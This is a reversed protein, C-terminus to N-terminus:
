NMVKRRFQNHCLVCTTVVQGYHEAVVARLYDVNLEGKAASNKDRRLLEEAVVITHGAYRKLSTAYTNFLTKEKVSKISAPINDLLLDAHNEIVKLEAPISEYHGTILDVLIKNLNNFNEGMMAKIDKGAANGSSILFVLLAGLLASTRLTRKLSMKMTVEEQNEILAQEPLSM